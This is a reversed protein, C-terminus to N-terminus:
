LTDIVITVRPNSKNQMYHQRTINMILCVGEEERQYVEGLRVRGPVEWGGVGLRLMVM